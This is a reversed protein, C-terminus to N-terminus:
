GAPVLEGSRISFSRHVPSPQMTITFVRGKVLFISAAPRVAEVAAGDQTTPLGEINRLPIEAISLRFEACKALRYHREIAVRYFTDHATDVIFRGSVAAFPAMQWGHFPM